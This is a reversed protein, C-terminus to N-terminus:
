NKNYDKERIEDIIKAIIQSTFGRRALFAYTKQKQEILPLKKWIRFKKTVAQRAMELEDSLGLDGLVIDIVDRSIGKNALEFSLSRKGKPRFNQRQEVWWKAFVKDDLYKLEYLRRVVQEIVEENTFNKKRLKQVLFNRMEKESRPRYSVFSIANELFKQYLEDM